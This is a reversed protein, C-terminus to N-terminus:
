FVPFGSSDAGTMGVIAFAIEKNNNLSTVKSGYGWDTELPNLIVKFEM